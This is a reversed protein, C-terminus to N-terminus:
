FGLSMFGKVNMAPLMPLLRDVMKSARPEDWDRQLIPCTEHVEKGTGLDKASISVTNDAEISITVEIQPVGKKAPAIGDLRLRGLSVNDKALKEEGQVVHIDVVTQNDESTSFIQSHKTPITTNREILRIAEGGTVEICLALPEVDLLLIADTGLSGELKGGLVSAGIAVCEDHNLYKGPEVGVLQRVKEQVAPIRASGGVLLVQKSDMDDLWEADKMTNQVLIAVKEVLDSTLEDFKERTLERNFSRCGKENDTMFSLSINASMASSLEIKAKEAARKLMQMAVKDGCIDVGDASKLEDLMWWVIRDDFDDGGISDGNVAFVEAVDDSIEVIAVSFNGGGFDCIMIQEDEEYSRKFGYTLAIAVPESIIRRANLGALKAAAKIEQRQLNDFYAPVTIVTDRVRQWLYNEADEKLKKLIMAYIQQPSYEKGDITRVNATGIDRKISSITREVDPVAQCRAPKGVLKEGVKSFAVVSPITMEGEANKIVVPKGNEIVAVCSNTTGLDIGITRDM